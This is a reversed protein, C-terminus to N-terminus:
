FNSNKLCGNRPGTSSGSRKSDNGDRERSPSRSTDRTWHGSADRARDSSDRGLYPESRPKSKVIKKVGPYPSDSRRYDESGADVHDRQSEKQRVRVAEVRCQDDTHNDKGCHGCAYANGEINAANRNLTGCHHCYLAGINSPQAEVAMSRVPKPGAPQATSTRAAHAELAQAAINGIPPLATSAGVNFAGSTFQENGLEQTATAINDAIGHQMPPIRTGAQENMTQSVQAILPDHAPVGPFPHAGNEMRRLHQNQLGQVPLNHEARMTIANIADNAMFALARSTGDDVEPEFTEAFVGDDEITEGLQAVADLRLPRPLRAVQRVFGEWGRARSTNNNSCYKGIAKLILEVLTDESVTKGSETVLTYHYLVDQIWERWEGSFSNIKKKMASEQMTANRANAPNFSLVIAKWANTAFLPQGKNAMAHSIIPCAKESYKCAEHLWQWMLEQNAYQQVAGLGLFAIRQNSAPDNIILTWIANPNVREIRLRFSEQWLMFQTLDYTLIPAKSPEDRYQYPALPVGALPPPPFPPPPMGPAGPAGPAPAFAAM